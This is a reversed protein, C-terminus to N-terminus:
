LTQGRGRAAVGRDHAECGKSQAVEPIVGSEIGWEPRAEV